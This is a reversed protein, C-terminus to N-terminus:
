FISRAVRFGLNFDRFTTPFGDGRDAVRCRTVPLDYWSGGRQVRMLGDSPGIPDAQVTSPYSGVRDHCWEWVNGSMDYLGLENPDKLGVPHTKMDAVGYIHWFCWGVGLLDDSGAYKYDNTENGNAIDAIGGRAAYEWEAETPLRYGEVQTIDTTVNGSQDLLEGTVDNYATTLGNQASLWNCYKIADGWSVNIVPRTGRGWGNDSPTTIGIDECYANYEDFTLEYPAIWYDYTLIVGHVPKEQSFGEPDNRTNGMYFTIGSNQTFNAKYTKNAIATVQYALDSSVKVGGDYWGEFAYGSAAAAEMTLKTWRDVIMSASDGWTGGDIRVDGGNAPSAQATITVGSGSLGSDTKICNIASEVTERSGAYDLNTDLLVLYGSSGEGFPYRAVKVTGQDFVINQFDAAKQDSLRYYNASLERWAGDGGRYHGVLDVFINRGQIEVQRNEEFGGAEDFDSISVNAKAERIAQRGAQESLAQPFVETKPTTHNNHKDKASHVVEILDYSIGNYVQTIVDTPPLSLNMKFTGDVIECLTVRQAGENVAIFITVPGSQETGEFAIINNGTQAERELSFGLERSENLENGAEGDVTVVYNPPTNDAVPLAAGGGCGVIMLLLAIYAFAIFLVTKKRYSTTKM